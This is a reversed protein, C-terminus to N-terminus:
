MVKIKCIPVLRIYIVVQQYAHTYYITNWKVEQFM